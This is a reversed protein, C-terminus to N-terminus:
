QRSVESELWTLHEVQSAGYSIETVIPETLGISFACTEVGLPTGCGYHITTRRLETPRHVAAILALTAVDTGKTIQVDTASRTFGYLGIPDKLKGFSAEGPTHDIVLFSQGDGQGFGIPHDPNGGGGGSWRRQVGDWEGQWQGVPQGLVDFSRFTWQIRDYSFGLRDVLDAGQVFSTVSADELELQLFCEQRARGERCVDLRVRPFRRGAAWGDYLPASARDTVKLVTLDDHEVQGVGVGASRPVQRAAHEYGTVDSWDRHDRDTSDGRLGEVELFM